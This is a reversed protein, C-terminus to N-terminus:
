RDSEADRSRAHQQLPVRWALVDSRCRFTVRRVSDRGRRVVAGRRRIEEARVCAPRPRMATGRQFRPAARLRRTPLAGRRRQRVPSRHADLGRRLSPVVGRAGQHASRGRLLPGRHFRGDTSGRVVRSGASRMGRLRAGRQFRDAASTAGRQGTRNVFRRGQELEGGHAM